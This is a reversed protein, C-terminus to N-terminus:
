SVASPIFRVNAADFTGDFSGSPSCGYSALLNRNETSSAGLRGLLQDDLEIILIPRHHTLTHTAGLFVQLDSGEVDIKLVDVRSIGLDNLIADLPRAQGRHDAQSAGYQSANAQSISSSGSNSGSAAFLDVFTESDFCAIPQVMVAAAISHFNQRLVKVSEPNAEIAVVRGEPGVM